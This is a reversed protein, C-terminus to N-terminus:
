ATGRVPTLQRARRHKEAAPKAETQNSRGVLQTLAAALITAVARASETLRAGPQLEVALVGVCKARLLLPLVVAGSGGAESAIERIKGSRFSAATPNDDERTVVPLRAVVGASYGHVLAPRLVASSSNWLWVIVGTADLISAVEQLLPQVDHANSAQGFRTCLRAIAPLDFQPAPAPAPSPKPKPAPAEQATVPQDPPAQAAEAAKQPPPSMPMPPAVEVDDDGAGARMRRSLSGIAAGVLGRLGGHSVEQRAAAAMAEAAAIEEPDPHVEVFERVTSDPDLGIAQAYSRVWARRFIGSPWHSLDDRELAELLSRKIKTQEAIAALDIHQTERRKRLRAGFGATMRCGTAVKTRPALRQFYQTFRGPPEARDHSRVTSIVCRCLTDPAVTAPRRDNGGSCVVAQMRTAVRASTLRLGAPIRM